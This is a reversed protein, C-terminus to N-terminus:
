DVKLFGYEDVPLGMEEFSPSNNAIINDYIGVTNFVQFCGGAFLLMFAVCAARLARKTKKSREKEEAFYPKVEQILESVREMKEHELRCNECEQLHVLFDEERLFTLMSEYGNCTKKNM